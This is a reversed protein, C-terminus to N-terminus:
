VITLVRYSAAQGKVATNSHILPDYEVKGRYGVVFHTYTLGTTPREYRTIVYDKSGKVYDLAEKHLVAKLGTIDEVIAAGDLILCDKGMWGRNVCEEYYAIVDVSKHAIREALYVLSLYYCGEAGITKAIAQKYLM